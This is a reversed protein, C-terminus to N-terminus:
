GTAKPWTAPQDLAAARSECAEGHSVVGTGRRRTGLSRGEGNMGPNGIFSGRFLQDPVANLVDM